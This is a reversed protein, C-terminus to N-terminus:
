YGSATPKESGIFTPQERCPHPIAAPSRTTPACIVFSAAHLVACRQAAKSRWDRLHAFVLMTGTPIDLTKVLSRDQRRYFVRLDSYPRRGCATFMMPTSITFNADDLLTLVKEVEDNTIYGAQVAEERIQEFNARMLRAGPSNGEHIALYGEM